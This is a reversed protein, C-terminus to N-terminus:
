DPWLIEEEAQAGARKAVKERVVKRLHIELRREFEELTQFTHFAAKFSDEANGLWRNCFADLAQKQELLQQVKTANDLEALARATKRYVLLDPTGREQHSAFADEFEFETGSSYASGDPRTLHPPLRTGLRAWLIFVAIDTSSPLVIQAQFDATAQLPEDEWFYCELQVHTSFEAQLRDVVEATRRREDAVDGPSSVFIRLRDIAM